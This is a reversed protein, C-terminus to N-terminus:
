NGQHNLHHRDRLGRSRLPQMVVCVVTKDTLEHHYVYQPRRVLGNRFIGNSQLKASSELLTWYRADTHTSLQDPHCVDVGVELGSHSAVAVASVGSYSCYSRCVAGDGPQVYRELCNLLARSGLRFFRSDGGSALQAKNIIICAVQGDFLDLRIEGGVNVTM